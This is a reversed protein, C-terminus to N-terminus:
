RGVLAQYARRTDPSVSALVQEHSTKHRRLLRASAVPKSRCYWHCTHQFLLLEASLTYAQRKRELGTRNDVVAAFGRGHLALAERLDFTAAPLWQTIYPLGLPWRCVRAQAEDMRAVDKALRSLQESLQQETSSLMRWIPESREPDDEDLARLYGSTVQEMLAELRYPQLVRALWLIRQRQEMTKIAYAGMGVMMWGFIWEM